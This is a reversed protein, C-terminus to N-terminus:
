QAWPPIFPPAGAMTAQGGVPLIAVAEFPEPGPNALAFDQGADIVLADGAQVEVDTGDLSALGAGAVVVLIEERDLQHVTGPTGPALVVRWACNESTGRSPSALGTFVAGALEFTPATAGPIHTM